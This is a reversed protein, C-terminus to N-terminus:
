YSRYNAWANPANCSLPQELGTSQGLKQVNGVQGQLKGRVVAKIAQVRGLM